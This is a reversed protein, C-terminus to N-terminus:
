LKSLLHKMAWNRQFNPFEKGMLIRTNQCQNVSFARAKRTKLKSLSRPVMLLCVMINGLFFKQFTYSGNLPKRCGQLSGLCRIENFRSVM